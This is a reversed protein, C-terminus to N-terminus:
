LSGSIVIYHAYSARQILWNTFQQYFLMVAPDDNQLTLVNEILQQCKSNNILEVDCYDFDTISEFATQLYKADDIPIFTHNDDVQYSNSSDSLVGKCFTINVPKLNLNLLSDLQSM